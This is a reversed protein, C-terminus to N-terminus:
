AAVEMATITNATFGSWAADGDSYPRGVAVWYSSSNPVALQIKYTVASTTAPSDLYVPSVAQIDYTTNYSTTAYGHWTSRTRNSGVQDGILLVTDAGGGISRALRMDVHAYYGITLYPTLLIKNSSTSPTITVSLGTVDVFSQSQTAFADTKVTQVVQLITGSPMQSSSINAATSMLTGGEDPLTLTRDTNTAPSAITFLATGSANPSLAIKSM